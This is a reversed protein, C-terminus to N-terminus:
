KLSSGVIEGIYQTINLYMFSGWCISFITFVTTTFVVAELVEPDIKPANLSKQLFPQKNLDHLFQLDFFYILIEQLFTFLETLSYLFIFLDIDNVFFNVQFSSMIKFFTNLTPTFFYYFTDEFNKYFNIQSLYLYFFRCNKVFLIFPDDPCFTPTEEINQFFPELIFFFFKDIQWYIFIVINLVDDFNFFFIFIRYIIYFPLLVLKADNMCYYWYDNNIIFDDFTDFFFKYFYKFSDSLFLLTDNNLIFLEYLIYCNFFGIFSLLLIRFFNM